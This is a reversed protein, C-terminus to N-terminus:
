RNTRWEAVKQLGEPTLSYQEHIFINPSSAAHGTPDFLKNVVLGLTIVDVAKDPAEAIIDQPAWVTRFGEGDFSYLRMRVTPPTRPLVIALALFWFEGPVGSTPLAKANLGVVHDENDHLYDTSAVPVLSDGAERYARFSLADDPIADGGWRLEIGVILFRGAPLDVVFGVTKELNGKSYGLLADLGAQVAEAQATRPHFSEVIFSDLELLIERTVSDAKREYERLGLEDHWRLQASLKAIREARHDEKTNVTQQQAAASYAATALVLLLKVSLM